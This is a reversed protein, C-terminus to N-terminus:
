GVVDKDVYNRLSSCLSNWVLCECVFGMCECQCVCMMKTWVDGAEGPM